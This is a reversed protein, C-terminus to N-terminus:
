DKHILEENTYVKRLNNVLTIFLKEIEGDNKKVSTIFFEM